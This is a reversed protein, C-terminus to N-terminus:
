LMRCWRLLVTFHALWYKDWSIHAPASTHEDTSGARHFLAEAGAAVSGSPALASGRRFLGYARAFQEFLEVRAADGDADVAFVQQGFLGRLCVFIRLLNDINHMVCSQRLQDRPQLRHYHNLALSNIVPLAFRAIM